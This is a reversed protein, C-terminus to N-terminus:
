EVSHPRMHKAWFWAEKLPLDNYFTPIPSNPVIFDGKSMM